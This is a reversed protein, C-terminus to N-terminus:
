QWPILKTSAYWRMDDGRVLRAKFESPPILTPFAGSPTTFDYPDTKQPMDVGGVPCRPLEWGTDNELFKAIERMVMEATLTTQGPIVTEDAM